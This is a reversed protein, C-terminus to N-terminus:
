LSGQQNVVTSWHHKREQSLQLWLSLIYSARWLPCRWLSDSKKLHALLDQDETESASLRESSIYVCVQHGKINWKRCLRCLSLLYNSWSQDLTIIIGSRNLLCLNAVSRKIQLLITALKICLNGDLFPRPPALRLPSDCILPLGSATGVSASIHYQPSCDVICYMRVAQAMYAENMNQIMEEYGYRLKALKRLLVM